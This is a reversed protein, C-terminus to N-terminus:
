FFNRFITFMGLIIALIGVLRRLITENRIRKTTLAGLFTAPIAGIILALTLDLSFIGNLLIYSLLGALCVPAKCALSVGISNKITRGSVVQGATVLPGFGGGSISKNFASLLGIAGLKKWSFIYRTVRLMLLGLILVLIGIYMKIIIKNLQLAILVSLASTIVGLGGILYFIYRNTKGNSSFDTNGFYQHFIAGGLGILIESTLISPVIYFVDLNFFLLVPTLITGYGGGLSADLFECSFALIVIFSFFILEM